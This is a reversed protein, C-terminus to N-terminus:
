QSAVSGRLEDILLQDDRSSQLRQKPTQKRPRAKQQRTAGNAEAKQEQLIRRYESEIECKRQMSDEVATSAHDLRERIADLQIQLASPKPSLTPEDDATSHTPNNKIMEYLNLPPQQPTSTQSEAAAQGEAEHLEAEFGDEGGGEDDETEFTTSQTQISSLILECAFTTSHFTLNNVNVNYTVTEGQLEDLSNLAYEVTDNPVSEHAAQRPQQEGVVTEAIVLVPVSNRTDVRVRLSSPDLPTYFQEIDARDLQKNFWDASSHKEYVVDLVQRNIEEIVRANACDVLTIYPTRQEEDYAVTETCVKRIALTLDSDSSSGAANSIYSVAVTDIQVPAHVHLSVTVDDDADLRDIAAQEHSGEQLM